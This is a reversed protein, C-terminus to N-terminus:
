EEEMEIHIFELAKIATDTAERATKGGAIVHGLRDNSSKTGNIVDGAKKYLVFEELGELTHIDKEVVIRKIIGPIGSIFRIASGREWRATLDTKEGAALLVSGGVMDVGTSLPVLRSTIFDGGLRAAIEVIKPGSETVKIETHSPGNQLRIAKVAQLTVKRIATKIDEPLESPQSHGLEVFYPPPTIFKDTITIITTEGNVTMSEVSVEAGTMFEEAMVIGNRSNSKSYEYIEKLKDNDIEILDTAEKKSDAAQGGSNRVDVLVVGRSGANDAPKVICYGKLEGVAKKLEEFDHAAYYAPIPVGNEKLRDRMYSKITACLSDGYSLDPNKGLKENVYAATRVPGDSTSTIVVDPQYILAQRYVEEQDLTSVVLKVDALPFGPANEDYDVLIIQFGLEKAKEIAPIQLAGAGLIMMKKQM